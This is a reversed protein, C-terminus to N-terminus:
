LKSNAASKSHRFNDGVAYVVDTVETNTKPREGADQGHRCAEQSSTHGTVRHKCRKNHSDKSLPPTKPKRPHYNRDSLSAAPCAARWSRLRAIIYLLPVSLEEDVSLHTRKRATVNCRTSRNDCHQPESLGGGDVWRSREADMGTNMVMM